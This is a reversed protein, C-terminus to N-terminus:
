SNIFRTFGILEDAILQPNVLNLQHPVGELVKSSSGPIWGAVQLTERATVM